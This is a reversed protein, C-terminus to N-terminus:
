SRTRKVMRVGLRVVGESVHCSGVLVVVFPAVLPVAFVERDVGGFVRGVGLGGCGVGGLGLFGGGGGEGAIGAGEGGERACGGEM